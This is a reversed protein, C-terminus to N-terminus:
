GAVRTGRAWPGAGRALILTPVYVQPRIAGARAVVESSCFESKHSQSKLAYKLMCKLWNASPKKWTLVHTPTPDTNLM